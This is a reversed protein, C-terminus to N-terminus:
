GKEFTKKIQESESLGKSTVRKFSTNLLGRNNDRVQKHFEDQFKKYLQKAKGKTLYWTETFDKSKKDYQEQSMIDRFINKIRGDSNTNIGVMMKSEDMHDEFTPVQRDM